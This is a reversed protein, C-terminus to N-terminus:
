HILQYKLFGAVWCAFYWHKAGVQGDCLLGVRADSKGADEETSWFLQFGCRSESESQFLIGKDNRRM